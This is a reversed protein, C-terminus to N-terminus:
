YRVKGRCKEIAVRALVDMPDILPVDFDEQGIVLPIETCGAILSEAGNSLLHEFARLVKERVSDDKHGAKIGQKGYIACMVLEEQMNDPLVHAFYGAKELSDQFLRSKIAGTTAIIGVNNVKNKLRDLLLVSEDIANIFPVSVSKQLSQLYYHATMCPMILYDAGMEELIKASRTMEKMPSQGGYLIAKTRDPINTNNHILIEIHEQDVMANCQSVVKNFMFATAEPGMGGIIGLIGRKLVAKHM